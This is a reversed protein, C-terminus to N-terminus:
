NYSIKELHFQVQMFEMFAIFNSHSGKHYLM